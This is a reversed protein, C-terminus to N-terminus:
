NGARFLWTGFHLYIKRSAGAILDTIISHHPFPIAQAEGANNVSM